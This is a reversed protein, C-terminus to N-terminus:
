KLYKAKNANHQELTEAYHVAGETDTLFYYSENGWPNITAELSEKSPMAIPGLPLGPYKYTNYLSDTNDRDEFSIGPDDKRTIYNVSSDVQLAWNLTRRRMLLDAVKRRDDNKQVESEVISAHTLCEHITFEHFTCWVEASDDVYFDMQKAMKILVDDVTADDFIEYTDPFLYGEMSVYWPRHKLLAIEESLEESPQGRDERYDRGPVGTYDFLDKAGEIDQEILYDKLDYLDWGEIITLQKIGRPKNTIAHAIKSVSAGIIVDAQGITLKTDLDNRKAYWKLLWADRAPMVGKEILLETASAFDSGEPIQITAILDPDGDRWKTRHGLWLSYIALLLILLFIFKKMNKVAAFCCLLM